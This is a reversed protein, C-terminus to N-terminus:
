LEELIGRLRRAETNYKYKDALAVKNRHYYETSHKNNLKLFREKNQTRWQYIRIRKNEDYPM